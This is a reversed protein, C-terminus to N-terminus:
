AAEGEDAGCGAESPDDVMTEDEAPEPKPDGNLEALLRENGAKASVVTAVRVDELEDSTHFGGLVDPYHDRVLFTVARKRLMVEPMSKYKPNKTWGEAKAMEMSVTPGNLRESTEADVVWARMSLTDGAGASEYHVTGKIVGMRRLRTLMFEASFGARGSVFYIGRMLLVPEEGLARAMDIAVAISAPNKQFHDPVLGSRAIRECEAKLSAIQEASRVMIGNM